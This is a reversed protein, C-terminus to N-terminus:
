EGFKYGFAEIDKLYMIEVLKRTVDDYYDTYLKHKKNNKTKTLLDRSTLSSEIKSSNTHPLQTDSFGLQACVHDFDDQLKEFRGVYDVLLKGKDDYLFDYQPILHRYDDSYKSKHPLGKTIFESFTMNKYYDRYNYESVIRDWPNRVFSFKFYSSFKNKEIYDYEIYERATLHALREPGRNPDPNYKLLLAAREVWSLNHSKLFYHEVSQGAAKPIHVFVCKYKDSIM